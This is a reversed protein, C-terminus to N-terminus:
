HDTPECHANIARAIETSWAPLLHPHQSAVAQLRTGLSARLQRIQEAGIPKIPEGAYEAILQAPNSLKGSYLGNILAEATLPAGPPLTTFPRLLRNEPESVSEEVPLPSRVLEYAVRSVRLEADGRATAVPRWRLVLVGRVILDLLMHQAIGVAEVTSARDPRLPNHLLTTRAAPGISIPPSIPPLELAVLGPAGQWVYRPAKRAHPWTTVELLTDGGSDRVARLSQRQRRFWWVGLVILGAIPLVVLWLAYRSLWGILFFLLATSLVTLVATLLGAIIEPLAPKEPWLTSIGAPTIPAYACGEGAPACAEIAAGCRRECSSCFHEPAAPMSMKYAGEEITATARPM